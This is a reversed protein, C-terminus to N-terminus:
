GGLWRNSKCQVPPCRVQSCWQEKTRQKAVAEVATEVAVVVVVEAGQKTWHNVIEDVDDVDVKAVVM